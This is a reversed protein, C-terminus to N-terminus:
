NLKFRKQSTVRVFQFIDSATLFCGVYKTVAIQFISTNKFVTFM